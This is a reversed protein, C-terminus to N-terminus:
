PVLGLVSWKNSGELIYICYMGVKHCLIHIVVCNRISFSFRARSASISLASLSLFIVSHLPHVRCPCTLYTPDRFSSSTPPHPTQPLLVSSGVYTFVPSVEWFVCFVCYNCSTTFFRLRWSCSDLGRRVQSVISAILKPVCQMFFFFHCGHLRM